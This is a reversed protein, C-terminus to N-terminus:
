NEQDRGEPLRTQEQIALGDHLAAVRGRGDWVSLIGVVVVGVVLLLAAIGALWGRARHARDLRELHRLCSDYDTRIASADLRAHLKPHGSEDAAQALRLGAARIRRPLRRGAEELRESLGDGRARLRERLLGAIRDAMEEISITGM